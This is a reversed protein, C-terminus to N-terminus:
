IVVKEGLKKGRHTDNKIHCNTCYTIGNDITFRLEPFLSFPKIHHVELYGGSQGCGKCIYNDREFCKSRWEKYELSNRILKNLTSTFGNWEEVSINQQIASIKKRTELTHRGWKNEKGKMPPTENEWLKYEDKMGKNWPILGIKFHTRGTNKTIGHNSCFLSCLKRGRKAHSPSCKFKKDCRECIIEVRMDKSM